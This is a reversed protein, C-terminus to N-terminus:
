RVRNVYLGGRWYRAAKIVCPDVRISLLDLEGSRYVNIIDECPDLVQKFVLVNERGIGTAREWGVERRRRPVDITLQKPYESVDEVRMEGVEKVELAFRM